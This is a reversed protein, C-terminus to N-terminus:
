LGFLITLTVPPHSLPWCTWAQHSSTKLMIISFINKSLMVFLDAIFKGTLITLMLLFNLKKKNTWKITCILQTTAKVFGNMKCFTNM